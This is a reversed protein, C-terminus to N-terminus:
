PVIVLTTSFVAIFMPCAQDPKCIPKGQASITVTGTKAAVYMGQVGPTAAFTEIPTFLSPDSLTATWDMDTGLKITIPTGQRVTITQSFDDHTIVRPGQSKDWVTPNPNVPTVPQSPTIPQVPSGVAGSPHMISGYVAIVVVVIVVLAIVSLTNKM